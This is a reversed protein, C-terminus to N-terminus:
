LGMACRDKKIRYGSVDRIVFLDTYKRVNVWSMIGVVIFCWRVGCSM